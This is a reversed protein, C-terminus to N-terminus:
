STKRVRRAPPQPPGAIAQAIEDSAIAVAQSMAAVIGDYGPVPPGQETIMSRGSALLTENDGKYIRWRADLVVEGSLDADFRNIDIEVVRYLPVDGRQPLPIVDGADLLAYLDQAMVRTLLPELPESWKHFEALRMQNAGERTVIDPRDLYQPLTIPGLGIVLGTASRKEGQPAAVPSLTYFATPSTRTCAAALVLVAVLGLRRLGATVEISM